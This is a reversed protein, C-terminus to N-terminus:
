LLIKTSCLNGDEEGTAVARMKSIAWDAHAAENTYRSLSASFGDDKFETQMASEVMEKAAEAYKSSLYARFLDAAPDTLWDKLSKAQQPTFPTRDLNM